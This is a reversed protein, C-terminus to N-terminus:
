ADHARDRHVNHHDFDVSHTTYVRNSRPYSSGRFPPCLPLSPALRPSPPPRHFFTVCRLQAGSYFRTISTKPCQTLSSLQSSPSHVTSLYLHLPTPRLLIEQELSGPNRTTRRAQIVDKRDNRACFRELGAPPYRCRPGEYTCRKSLCWHRTQELM